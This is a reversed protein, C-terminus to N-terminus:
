YGIAMETNSWDNIFEEIRANWEQYATVAQNLISISSIDKSTIGGRWGRILGRTTLFRLLAVFVL